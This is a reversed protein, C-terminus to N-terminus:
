RRPNLDFSSKPPRSRRYALIGAVLFATLVGATAVLLGVQPSIGLANWLDM